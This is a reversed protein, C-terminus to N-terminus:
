AYVNTAAIEPPPYASEEAYVVAADVEKKAAEEIESIEAANFINRELL